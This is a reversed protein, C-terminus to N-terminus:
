MVLNSIFCLNERVLNYSYLYEIHADEMQSLFTLSIGLHRKKIVIENTYFLHKKALVDISKEFGM